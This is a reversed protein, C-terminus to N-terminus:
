GTAVKVAENIEDTMNYGKIPKGEADVVKKEQSIKIKNQSFAKITAIILPFERALGHQRILQFLRNNEGEKKIEDISKNQIEKWYKDFPEGRISFSGYTVPPGKDLEPTVLHMMVGTEETRSEMLQWIVEQWTGAPGGPAAPHLNIMNYRQCMEKGVILMYGALVCLDPNFGELHKMIQRDYDLRWSPLTGMQRYHKASARFKDYSFCILPINDNEVMKFLRDSEKSEGPERNSFVFQIQAKLEGRNISGQVAKLLDRAAKDRGTSFWGLRYM